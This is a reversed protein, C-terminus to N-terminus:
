TRKGGSSSAKQEPSDAKIKSLQIGTDKEFHEPLLQM